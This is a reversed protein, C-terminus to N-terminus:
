MQSKYSSLLRLFHAKNRAKLPDYNLLKAFDKVAKPLRQGKPVFFWMTTGSIFYNGMLFKEKQRGVHPRNYYWFNNHSFDVLEETRSFVASITGLNHHDLISM